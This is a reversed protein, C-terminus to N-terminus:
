FKVLNLDCLLRLGEIMAPNNLSYYVRRGRKTQTLIYGYQLKRLHQSLAPQTIIMREQIASANIYGENAITQLVMLRQPHAIAKLMITAKEFAPNELYCKEDFM